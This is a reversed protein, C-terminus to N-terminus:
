PTNEKNTTTIVDIECHTIYNQNGYCVKYLNNLCQKKKKKQTFDDVLQAHVQMVRPREIWSRGSYGGPTGM